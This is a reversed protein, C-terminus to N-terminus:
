VISDGLRSHHYVLSRDELLKSYIEEIENVEEYITKVHPIGKKLQELLTPEEIVRQLQRSLDEVNGSEFLLGNFEHTVAEAMGGLKSAIVPTNTAFAEYIVLPFDYCLSPVVLIDFTSFVEASQNHSYIGCFKINSNSAALQRLEAAYSPNKDMSGYISLTFKDGLKGQLTNTAKLLLHIGKSPLIQGIFGLRIDKSPTKGCFNGLWSLDHGYPQVKIPADIGNLLFINQVFRSATIRIDPLSLAKRLFVKRDAMDGAMGRLGRQRTLLPYKSISILLRSLDQEPLFHKPWQYAKSNFIKCKLCDWETTLGNCNTGDNKLLNIQPCLFWFDTLSLVLPLSSEKSVQLVSASLTECSTVHVIDPQLQKIYSRLFNAVEPNNYLYSFPDPSKKWNLNLRRVSVGGQTEDEYGNWYYPGNEWEGSCLVQVQHGRHVLEEGIGATYTETGAWRNPPYGNSILLTKL